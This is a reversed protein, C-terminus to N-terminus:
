QQAKSNIQEGHMSLFILARNPAEPPQAWQPTHSNRKAKQSEMKVFYKEL